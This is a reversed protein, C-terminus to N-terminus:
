SKRKKPPALFGLNTVNKFRTGGFHGFKFDTASTAQLTDSALIAGSKAEMLFYTAVSSGIITQVPLFFFLRLAKVVISEKGSSLVSLYLYHSIKDAIIQHTIAASVLPPHAAGKETSLLTTAFADFLATAKALEAQKSEAATKQSENAEIKEKLGKDTPKKELAAKDASIEATLKTISQDIKSKCIGLQQRASTANAFNKIIANDNITHFDKLLVCFDLQGAVLANLAENPLELRNGSFEFEPKFYGVIEASAKLIGEIQGLPSAIKDLINTTEPPPLVTGDTDDTDTFKEIGFTVSQEPCHKNLLEILANHM